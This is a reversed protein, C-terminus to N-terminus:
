GGALLWGSRRCGRNKRAAAASRRGQARAPRAAPRSPLRARADRGRHRPPQDICADGQDVHGADAAGAPRPDFAFAAAGVHLRQRRREVVPADGGGGRQDLHPAASSGPTGTTADPPMRCPSSAARATRRPASMAPMAAPTSSAARREVASRTACRDSIIACSRSAINQVPDASRVARRLRAAALNEAPIFSAVAGAAEDRAASRRPVRFVGCAGAGARREARRSRRRALGPRHGVVGACQRSLRASRGDNGGVLRGALAPPIARRPRLPKGANGPQLRPFLAGRGARVRRDVALEDRELRPGLRDAHGRFAALGLRWDTLINKTLWSGVVMRVRNHMRGTVWMERLGADVLAVGTEARRWRRYDENPGRWPFDTWERRWPTAAMAPFDILLHWAFERWIVESLFKDIEGARAPDADARRRAIAWVSRPSIEGVALHESLGSTADLDPRDRDSAYGSAGDLFADLRALAADEGAAQAFRDLVARGRYLDPALDLSAVCLADAVPPWADIRAPADPAPRDPGISRLTRAFPSYVRYTSGTKTRVLGPHVLLHGGHLVLEAGTPRLATRVRDQVARMDPAPWDTQHIERAGTRAILDPLLTEAEGRLLSVGAGGTRRRLAGDFARLAQELRWRSAAGQEQLLRDVFFVPLLPGQAVAALLAPNDAFRLDRGLWLIGPVAM